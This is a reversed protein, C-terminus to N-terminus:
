SNQFQDFYDKILDDPIRGFPNLNWVQTWPSGKRHTIDSLQSASYKSYLSDVKDLLEIQEHSFDLKSVGKIKEVEKSGFSNVSEYLDMEIPGYQFAFFESDIMPEKLIALSYGHAFYVLKQLKMNTYIPDVGAGKEDRKDLFYKAVRLSKNM